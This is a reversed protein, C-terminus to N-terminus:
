SVAKRFHFVAAGALNLGACLWCVGSVGLLPILWTSALLAGLFAGMFDATYLRAAVGATSGSEIRGALPLQLGVAMALVLTLLAIVIQIV